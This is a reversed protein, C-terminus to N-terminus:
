TDSDAAASVEAAASTLWPNESGGGKQNLM